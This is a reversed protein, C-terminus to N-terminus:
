LVKERRQESLEVFWRRSTARTTKTIALILHSIIHLMMRYDLLLTEVEKLEEETENAKRKRQMVSCIIKMKMLKLFRRPVRQTIPQQARPTEANVMWRRHKRSSQLIKQQRLVKATVKVHFRRSINSHVLYSIRKMMALSSTTETM